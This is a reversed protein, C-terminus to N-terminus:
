KDYKNYLVLGYIIHLVGFGAGWFLLGYGPLLASILGLALECLGLYRIDGLTHHSGNLLALGYFILCSPAVIGFYGRYLFILMVIGGAILPISVNILFRRANHDWYRVGAKKAKRMTFYLGTSISLFLVAAATFLLYALVEDQNAYHLRFGFPSNPYYLLFYAAVSGALAYIGALVGSLGSLSIFRTSREMINRISALDNEVNSEISM